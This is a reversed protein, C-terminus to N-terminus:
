MKYLLAGKMVPMQTIFSGSVQKAMDELHKEQLERQVKKKSEEVAKCCVKDAELQLQQKQASLRSNLEEATITLSSAETEDTQCTM